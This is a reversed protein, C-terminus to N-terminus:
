RCVCLSLCPCLCVLPYLCNYVLSSQLLISSFLISDLHIVCHIFNIRGCYKSMLANYVISKHQLITESEVNGSKVFVEKNWWKTSHDLM